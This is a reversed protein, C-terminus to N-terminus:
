KCRTWRHQKPLSCADEESWGRKIRGIIVSSNVGLKRAWAAQTMTEGKATILKTRSTNSAQELDTAWRCNSPEYNGDNDIREISTGSPRPGMDEVFAVFDNWRECVKIGRAGYHAYAREQPNNCRVRMSLWTNYLPHSKSLGHKM